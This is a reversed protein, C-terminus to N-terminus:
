SPAGEGREARFGTDDPMHSAGAVVSGNPQKAFGSGQGFAALARFQALIAEAAMARDQAVAAAQQATSVQVRLQEAAEAADRQQRASAAEAEVQKKM